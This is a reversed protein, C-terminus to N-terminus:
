GFILILGEGAGAGLPGFLFDDAVGFGTVDDAAVAAIGVVCVAVIAIGVIPKIVDAYAPGRKGNEWDHNHGGDGDHPHKDPRGHDDHDWDHEPNGDPGYTRKDGNPATYTSGPDGNNPRRNPTSKSLTFANSISSAVSKVAKVVTNVAKKVASSVASAVNKIWKPWHGTSDSMNVPNNHCYAFLNYGLMDGGVGAIHSDANIFRCTEPDYYRSSVYYLGTEADGVGEAVPSVVVVGLRSEVVQLGPVVVGIGSPEEISVPLKIACM